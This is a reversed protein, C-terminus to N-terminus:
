EAVRKLNFSESWRDQNYDNHLYRDMVHVKLREVDTIPIYKPLKITGNIGRSHDLFIICDELLQATIVQGESTYRAGTNWTVKM